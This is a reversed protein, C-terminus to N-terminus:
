QAGPGSANVIVLVEYRGLTKNILVQKTPVVMFGDSTIIAAFPKYRGSATDANNHAEDFLVKPHRKPYAPRSVNANFGLDIPQPGAVVPQVTADLNFTGLWNGALTGTTADARERKLRWTGTAVSVEGRFGGIIGSLNDGALTGTFRLETELM